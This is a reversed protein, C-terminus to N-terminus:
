PQRVEYDIFYSQKDADQAYHLRYDVVEDHAIDAFVTLSSLGLTMGVDTEAARLNLGAQRVDAAIPPAVPQSVHFFHWGEPSTNAYQPYLTIYRRLGLSFGRDYGQTDLHVGVSYLRREVMGQHQIFHGAVMGTSNVACGQSLSSLALIAISCLRAMHIASTTPTLASLM